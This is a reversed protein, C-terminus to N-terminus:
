IKLHMAEEISAADKAGVPMRVGWPYKQDQSREYQYVTLEPLNRKDYRRGFNFVVSNPAALILHIHEVGAGSLQKAIEFFQDSLASQKERSWHCNSSMASLQMELIPFPFTTRIDDTLVPYSVSIALVVQPTSSLDEFEPVSLRHNDDLEDLQRWSESTRDWDFVSIEGEDDLEVGTLFTLPVATLGGYAVKTNERGNGSRAQVIAEKMSSIKSLLSAPSIIKGDMKQRLDLLYPIRSAPHDASLSDALSKGDDDRLGRGEVVVIQQKSSSKRDSFFQFILVLFSLAFVVLNVLVVINLVLSGVSGSEFIQVTYERYSVAGVLSGLGLIAILITGSVMLAISFPSRKRFRWDVYKKVAYEFLSNM